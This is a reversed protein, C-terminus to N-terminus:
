RPRPPHEVSTGSSAPDDRVSDHPSEKLSIIDADLAAFAHVLYWALVAQEVALVVLLAVATKTMTRRFKRDTIWEDLRRDDENEATAVHM